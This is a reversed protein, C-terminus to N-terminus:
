ARPRRLRALSRLAATRRLAPPEPPLDPVSDRPAPTQERSRLRVLARPQRSLLIVGDVPDDARNTPSPLLTLQGDNLVTTRIGRGDAPLSNLLNLTSRGLPAIDNVQFRLLAIPGAVGPQLIIPDVAAASIALRGSSPVASVLWEDAPALSAPAASLFTFARPDFQIALDLSRLDIPVAGTHQFWVPVEIIEGRRAKLNRPISIKPDIGSQNIIIGGPIPPISTQPLGVIFRRLLTVDAPTATGSRNFDALIIPDLTPFAALGPDIGTILRRLQVVDSATVAGNANLDGPYAVILPYERSSLNNLL